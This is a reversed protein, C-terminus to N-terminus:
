DVLSFLHEDPTSKSCLRELKERELENARSFYEQAKEHCPKTGLGKDYLEGMLRLLGSKYSVNKEVLKSCLSFLEESLDDIEYQKQAMRMLLKAAMEESREVGRGDFYRHAMNLEASESGDDVAKLYWEIAKEESSNPLFGKEHFQGLSYEVDCQPTLPMTPDFYVLPERCASVQEYLEAAREYNKEVGQGNEYYRGLYYQSLVDGKDAAKKMYMVANVYDGKFECKFALAQLEDCSMNEDFKMKM